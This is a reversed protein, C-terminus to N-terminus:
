AIMESILPREGGELDSRDYNECHEDCKASFFLSAAEHM